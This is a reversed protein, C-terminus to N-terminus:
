QSPLSHCSEHLMHRCYGAHNTRMSHSETKSCPGCRHPAVPDQLNCLHDKWCTLLDTGTGRNVAKVDAREGAFSSHRSWLVQRSTGAKWGILLTTRIAKHQHYAQLPPRHKSYAPLSVSPKPTDVQQFDEACVCHIETICQCSTHMTSQGAAQWTSTGWGLWQYTDLQVQLCAQM